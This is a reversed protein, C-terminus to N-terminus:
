SKYGGPTVQGEYLFQEIQSESITMTEMKNIWSFDISPNKVQYQREVQKNFGKGALALEDGTASHGGTLGGSNLTITKKSLASNHIWGLQGTRVTKVNSWGNSETLIEVSEGYNLNTLLKGIFSPQHRLGGQKVIINALKM